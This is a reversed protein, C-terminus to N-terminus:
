LHFSFACTFRFHVPSVFTCPVTLHFYVPHTFNCLYSSLACTFRFQCIASILSCNLACSLHFHVPSVVTVPSVFTSPLTLHFYVPSTFNFLHSSLSLHYLHGCCLYPSDRNIKNAIPSFLFSLCSASFRRNFGKRDLGSGHIIIIIM